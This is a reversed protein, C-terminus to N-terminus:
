VVAVELGLAKLVKGLENVDMKYKKATAEWVDQKIRVRRKGKVKKKEGQGDLEKLRRLAGRMTLGSLENRNLEDWRSAIVTYKHATQRTFGCHKTVWDGFKIRDKRPKGENFTDIKAKVDLLQLGAARAHSVADWYASVTAEHEKRITEVTTKDIDLKPETTTTM